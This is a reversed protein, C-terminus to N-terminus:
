EHYKLGREIFNIEVHEPGFYEEIFKDMHVPEFEKCSYVDISIFRKPTLTHMQVGSEILPVWGSLGAKDPYLTNDSKFIFPPAQKKMGLKEVIEDLFKYCLSLDDCVGEKCNYLDITMLYGFPKRCTKNEM